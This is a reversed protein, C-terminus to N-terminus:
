PQQCFLCQRPLPLHLAKLVQWFIFLLFPLFCQCCTSYKISYLNFRSTRWGLNAAIGLQWYIDIIYENIYRRHERLCSHFELCSYNRWLKVSMVDSYFSEAFIGKPFVLCWCVKLIIPQKEISVMSTWCEQWWGGPVPKPDWCSPWKVDFKWSRNGNERLLSSTQSYTRERRPCVPGYLEM